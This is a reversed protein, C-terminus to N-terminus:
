RSRSRSSTRESSDNVIDTRKDSTGDRPNTGKNTGNGIIRQNEHKHNDTKDTKADAQNFPENTQLSPNDQRFDNRRHSRKNSGSDTPDIRKNTSDSTLGQQQHENDGAKNTKTDTQNLPEDTQLRSPAACYVIRLM